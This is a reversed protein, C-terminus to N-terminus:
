LQLSLKRLIEVWSNPQEHRHISYPTSLDFSGPMQPGSDEEENYVRAGLIETQESDMMPEPEFHLNTEDTFTPLNADSKNDVIPPLPPPPTEIASMMPIPELAPSLLNEDMASTMPIPELAPSLLKGDVVEGGKVVPEEEEPAIVNVFENSGPDQELKLAASLVVSAAAGAHNHTIHMDDGDDSEEHM